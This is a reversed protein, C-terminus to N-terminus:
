APPPGTPPPPARRPPTGGEGTGGGAPRRVPPPAGGGGPGGGGGGGGARDCACYKTFLWFPDELVDQLLVPVASPRQQGEGWACTSSGALYVAGHSECWQAMPTPAVRAQASPRPARVDPCRSFCSSFLGPWRG